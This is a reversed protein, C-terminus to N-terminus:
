ASPRAIQGFRSLTCQGKISNLNEHIKHRLRDICLNTVVQYLWTSVKANDHKWDPAIRWRRLFAEQAIYEADAKNRIRHFAQTFIKLMLREILIQAAKPTGNAYALLLANDNMGSLQDIPMTDEKLWIM